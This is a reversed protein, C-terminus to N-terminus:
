AVPQALRAHQQLAARVGAQVQAGMQVHQHVVAGPGGHRGEMLQAALEARMAQFDESHLLALGPADLM